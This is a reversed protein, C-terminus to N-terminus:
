CVLYVICHRVVRVEFTTEYESHAGVYQVKWVGVRSNLRGMLVEHKRLGAEHRCVSILKEPPSSITSSNSELLLAVISISSESDYIIPVGQSLLTLYREAHVPTFVISVHSKM